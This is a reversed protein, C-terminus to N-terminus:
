GPGSKQLVIILAIIKVDVALNLPTIFGHTVDEKHIAIIIERIGEHFVFVSRKNKFHVIPEIELLGM